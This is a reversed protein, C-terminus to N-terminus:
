AARKTQNSTNAIKKQQRCQNIRIIKPSKKPNENKIETNKFAKAFMIVNKLFDGRFIAKVSSAVAYIIFVFICFNLM